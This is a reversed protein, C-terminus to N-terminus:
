VIWQQNSDTMQIPKASSTSPLFPEIASWRDKVRKHIDDLARDTPLGLHAALEELGQKPLDYIWSRPMVSLM